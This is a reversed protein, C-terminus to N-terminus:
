RQKYRTAQAKKTNDRRARQQAATPKDKEPINPRDKAKFRDGMVRVPASGLKRFLNSAPISDAVLRGKEIHADDKGILWKATSWSGSERKGAVRQLHGEEGIDHTRFTVFETKPRVEVHYYDGEGTAGPKRRRRGEPQSRSRAGSSMSQWKAQAKVINRRAAKRQKESAM